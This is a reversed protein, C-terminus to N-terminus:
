SALREARDHARRAARRDERRRHVERLRADRGITRARGNASFPFKGVRYERGSAKVEHEALGVAAIEPWTYVVSPISHYHMHVPKGAIVEAAVVGEEEAKHALLKGGVCDGIAFVNPLNTRM